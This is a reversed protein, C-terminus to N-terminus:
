TAPSASAARRMPILIREESLYLRLREQLHPPTDRSEIKAFGELGYFSELHTYGLLFCERNGVERVLAALLRRGIGQRQRDATVNMTRLVTLGEELCLRVAGVIRGEVEAVFLRDAPSPRGRAGQSKYFETIEAFRNEGAEVISAM